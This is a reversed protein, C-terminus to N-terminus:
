ISCEAGFPVNQDLKSMYTRNVGLADGEAIGRLVSDGVQLMCYHTVM